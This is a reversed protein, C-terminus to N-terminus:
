ENAEASLEEVPLYAEWALCLQGGSVSIRLSDEEEDFSVLVVGGDELVYKAVTDELQVPKIGLDYLYLVYDKYDDLTADYITYHAHDPIEEPTQAYGVFSIQNEENVWYYYIDSDETMWIWPLPWVAPLNYLEQKDAIDFTELTLNSMSLAIAKLKEAAVCAEVADTIGTQIVDIDTLLEPKRSLIVPTYEAALETMRAAASDPLQCIVFNTTYFYFDLEANVVALEAEAALMLDEMIYMHFASEMLNGMYTGEWSALETDFTKERSENYARIESKVSEVDMNMASFIGYEADTTQQEVTQAAVYELMQITYICMTRARVLDDWSKTEGFRLIQELTVKKQVLAREQLIMLNMWDNVLHRLATETADDQQAYAAGSVLLVFSIMLALFKKMM